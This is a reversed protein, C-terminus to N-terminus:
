GMLYTGSGTAILVASQNFLEMRTFTIKNGSHTVWAKATFHSGKGPRVYEIHLNVTSSKSLTAALEALSQTSAKQVANIMAIAGGAMDLVSSIVGGHLIGQLFNGILEEKMDFSLKIYEKEIESLQLGITRNFPIDNLITTLQKLITSSIENIEQTTM